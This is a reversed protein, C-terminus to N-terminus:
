LTSIIKPLVAESRIPSSRPIELKGDFDYDFEELERPTIRHLTSEAFSICDAIGQNVRHIGSFIDSTTVALHRPAEPHNRTPSSSDDPRQFTDEALKICKVINDDVQDIRVIPNDLSISPRPNAKIHSAYGGILDSLKIGGLDDALNDIDCSSTPASAEPKKPNGLHNNFGSSGNANYVWSGFTFTTGKNPVVSIFSFSAM